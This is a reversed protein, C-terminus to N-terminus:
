MYTVLHKSDSVDAYLWRSFLLLHSEVTFRLHLFLRNNCSCCISSKILLASSTIQGGYLSERITHQRKSRLGKTFDFGSFIVLCSFVFEARIFNRFVKRREHSQRNYDQIFYIHHYIELRTFSHSHHMIGSLSM